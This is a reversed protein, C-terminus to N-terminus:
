EEANAGDDSVDGKAGGPYDVDGQPAFMPKPWPMSWTGDTMM